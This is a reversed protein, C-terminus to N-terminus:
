LGNEGAAAQAPCQRHRRQRPPQGYLDALAAAHHRAQCDQGDGAGADGGHRGLRYRRNEQRRLRSKGALVAAPHSGGHLRGRGAMRAQLRAFLQLLGFVHVPFQLHHHCHHWGEAHEVRDLARRRFGLGRGEGQPRLPHAAGRWARGRGRPHIQPHQPWRRDGQSGGLTQLQLGPYVHRQGLPHRPLSVPGLHRRHRRPGRPDCLQSRPLGTAPARRCRHRVPRRRCYPCRFSRAADSPRGTSTYTLRYQRSACGIPLTRSAVRKGHRRKFASNM